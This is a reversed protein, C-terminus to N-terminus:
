DAEGGALVVKLDFWHTGVFHLQYDSGALRVAVEVSPATDPADVGLIRVRM